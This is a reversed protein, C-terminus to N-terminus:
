RTERTPKMVLRYLVYVLLCMAALGPWGGFPPEKVVAMFDGKFVPWIGALTIPVALLIGM